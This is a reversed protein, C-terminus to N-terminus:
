HSSEEILDLLLEMLQLLIYQLQLLLALRFLRDLVDEAGGV